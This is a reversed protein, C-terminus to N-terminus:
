ATPAVPDRRCTDRHGEAGLADDLALQHRAALLPAAPRAFSTWELLRRARRCGPTGGPAPARCAPSAPRCSGAISPKASLARGIEAASFAISASAAFRISSAVALFCSRRSAAPDVVAAPDLRELPEDRLRRHVDLPQDAAVGPGAALRDQRVAGHRLEVQAEHGVHRRGLASAASLACRALRPKPSM